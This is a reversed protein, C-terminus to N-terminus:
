KACTSIIQMKKKGPHLKARKKCYIGTFPKYLTHTPVLGLIQARRLQINHQVTFSM